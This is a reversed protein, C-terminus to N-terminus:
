IVELSSNHEWFRSKKPNYSQLTNIYKVFFLIPSKDQFSQCLCLFPCVHIRCRLPGAEGLHVLLTKALVKFYGASLGFDVVHVSM